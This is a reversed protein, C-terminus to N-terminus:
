QLQVIFLYINLENGAMELDYNSMNVSHRDGMKNKNKTQLDASKESSRHWGTKRLRIHTTKKANTAAKGWVNRLDTPPKFPTSCTVM